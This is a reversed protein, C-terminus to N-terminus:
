KGGFRAILRAESDKARQNWYTNNIKPVPHRVIDDVKVSEIVPEEQVVPPVYPLPIPVLPRPKKYAEKHAPM